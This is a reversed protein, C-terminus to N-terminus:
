RPFRLKGDRRAGSPLVGLTTLFSSHLRHSGLCGQQEAWRRVFDFLQSGVHQGRAAIDVCLDDIYLTRRDQLLRDDQVQEIRVFAYGLVSM